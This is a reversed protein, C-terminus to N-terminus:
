YPHWLALGSVDLAVYQASEVYYFLYTWSGISMDPFYLLFGCLLYKCEFLYEVRKLMSSVSLSSVTLYLNQLLSVVGVDYLKEICDFCVIILIYIKDKLEHLGIKVIYYRFINKFINM